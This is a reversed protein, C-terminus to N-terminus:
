AEYCLLYQGFTQVMDIRQTRFLSVLRQIMDQDEGLCAPSAAEESSSRGALQRQGEALLTDVVCFVGSRGCGASCHIVLPPPLLASGAAAATSASEARVSQHQRVYQHLRVVSGPDEPVGHDPWGTYQIHHVIRSEDSGARRLRLRRHTGPLADPLATEEVLEVTLVGYTAAEGVQAPWYVHCKLRGHEMTRTLMLIIHTHQAWCMWWFSAFAAPLPGQGVIYAPAEPLQIAASVHSANIYDSDLDNEGSAATALCVRNRDYPWINCYRN